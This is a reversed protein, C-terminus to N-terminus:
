AISRKRRVFAGVGVLSAISVMAISSPEPVTTTELDVNGLVIGSQQNVPDTSQFSIVQTAATATFILTGTTYAPVTSTSGTHTLTESSGGATILFSATPTNPNNAYSFTLAYLQGVTLGSVSQSIGGAAPGGPNTGDLDVTQQGTIPPLIFSSALLDVSGQGPDTTGSIVTWSTIGTSGLGFTTAYASNPVNPSSFDGNLIFNAKVETALTALLGFAVLGLIRTKM